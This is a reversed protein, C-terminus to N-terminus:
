DKEALVDMSICSHAMSAGASMAASIFIAEAIEEDSAGAKRARQVHAEICYPCRTVHACGVAILEKMKLALAGDAFAKRDFDFFSDFLDKKIKRLEGISSIGKKDYFHDGM